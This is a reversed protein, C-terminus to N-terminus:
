PSCDQTYVAFILYKSLHWGCQEMCDSDWHVVFVIGPFYFITFAFFLHAM